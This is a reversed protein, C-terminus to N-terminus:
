TLRCKVASSIEVHAGNRILGSCVRRRLPWLLCAEKGLLLHGPADGNRRLAELLPYGCQEGVPSKVM